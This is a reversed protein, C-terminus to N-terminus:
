VKDGMIEKSYKCWKTNPYQKLLINHAKKAEEDVGISHYIEVLRYYAEPHFRKYDSNHIIENFKDIAGIYNRHKLDFRGIYMESAAIHNYVERLKIRADAAYKTTPFRLVVDQLSDKANQTILPAKKISKIQDYNNIAKLYYVYDIYDSTPNSEIFYQSIRISDPYDKGKYYSYAAMVQSKPAYESFPHEDEIKEFEEAAYTYDTKMMAKMANNYMYEATTKDVKSACATLLMVVFLVIFNVGKVKLM